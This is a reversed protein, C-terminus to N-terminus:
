RCSGRGGRPGLPPSSPHTHDNTTRHDRRMARHNSQRHTCSTGLNEDLSAIYVVSRKAETETARMPDRAKILSVFMRKSNRLNGM